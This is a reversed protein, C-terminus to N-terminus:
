PKRLLAVLTELMAARQPSDQYARLLAEAEGLESDADCGHAALWILAPLPEGKGFRGLLESYPRPDDARPRYIKAFQNHLSHLAATCLTPTPELDLAPLDEMLTRATLSDDHLIEVADATRHDLKRAGALAAEHLNRDDAFKLWAKLHAKPTLMAFHAPDERLARGLNKPDRLERLRVLDYNPERYAKAMTQWAAAEADCACDYGTLWDMAAVAGDVEAAIGAYPKSSSTKLALAAARQRLLARAKDCLAPTPNLDFRGLYALPFDGRVLMAEADGQRRDLHRIRELVASQKTADRTSLFPTLVWLPSSSPLKAFDTEYKVRAAVAHRDALSRMNLMPWVAVCLILMTGWAISGATLPSLAVRLRPLLAWFAFAVILPPALAPIVLPWRFPSVAPRALLELATIAAVGSAPVLVLAILALPWGIRGSVGALLTLGALLLWLVIIEIAAYAQALADGAADSGALDGLTALAAIWLLLALVSLGAAIVIAPAKATASM